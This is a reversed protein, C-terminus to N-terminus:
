DRPDLLLLAAKQGLDRSVASLTEAEAVAGRVSAAMAKQRYESALDSLLRAKAETIHRRSVALLSELTDILRVLKRVYVGLYTRSTFSRAWSLVQATTVTEKEHKM